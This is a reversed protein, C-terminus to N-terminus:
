EKYQQSVRKLLMRIANPIINVGQEENEEEQNSLKEIMIEHESKYNFAQDGLAM